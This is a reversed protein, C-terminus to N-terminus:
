SDSQDLYWMYSSDYLIQGKTVLRNWKANHGWPEDMNYCTNSNEKKKLSLLIGNCIYVVNQKDIWTDMSVQAAEVERSNHIISSHVHTHLYWKSIRSEIKKSIYGSTSNNSGVAIRTKIKKLFSWVTKWLTQLMKINGAATCLPELKEVDEGM